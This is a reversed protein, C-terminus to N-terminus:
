LPEPRCIANGVISFNASQADQLATNIQLPNLDVPDERIIGDVM